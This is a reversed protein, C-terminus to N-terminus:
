EIYISNRIINKQGKKELIIIYEVRKLTFGFIEEEKVVLQWKQGNLEHEIPFIGNSSIATEESREIAYLKKRIYKQALQRKTITDLIYLNDGQGQIIAILLISLIALAALIEILSFGNKIKLNNKQLFM